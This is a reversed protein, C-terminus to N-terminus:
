NSRSLHFYNYRNITDIQRAAEKRVSYVPDALLSEALASVQHISSPERHGASGDTICLAALDALQSALEMRTRWNGCQVVRGGGLTAGIPGEPSMANAPSANQSQWPPLPSASVSSSGLLPLLSLLCCRESPPLARALPVVALAMAPGLAEPRGQVAEILMPLLRSAISAIGPSSLPLSSDYWQRGFSRATM